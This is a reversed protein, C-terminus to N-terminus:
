KRNKVNSLFSPIQVDKEKVTSVPVDYQPLPNTAQPQMGQSATGQAQTHAANNAPNVSAPSPNTMTPRAPAVPRQNNIVDNPYRDQINSSLAPSVRPISEFVNRKEDLGTAIITVRCEDKMSEDVRMGYIFNSEESVLEEIYSAAEDVDFITLDGTFNVLVDSAGSISTDLLPSAVAAKAAELAREEGQATGIGVHAIGKDKMITQVDAFDVNVVAKQTILDTVGRVAQHLVNDVMMFAEAMSTKKDVLGKIMLNQNPIVIMTDVSERMKAIGAEAVRKRPAGEWKFPTTMIGVTLIGLDKAMKAIVPAAGTGTGGGMGCTVFIMNADRIAATLEEISEEAAKEGKEPNAGAGLGGTLKEGIQILTAAKCESLAQRDTNVGIFDVDQINEDIMRNVPNNGAGGVGVVVLRAQTDVDTTRLELM